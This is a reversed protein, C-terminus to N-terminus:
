LRKGVFQQLLAPPGSLGHKTKAQTPFVNGLGICRSSTVTIEGVSVCCGLFVRRYPRFETRGRPFADVPSHASMSPIRRRFADVHYRNGETKNRPLNAGLVRKARM